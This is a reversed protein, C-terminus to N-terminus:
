SLLVVLVLSGSLGSFWWSNTLDPIWHLGQLLKLVESIHIMLTKCVLSPLFKPIRRVRLVFLPTQQSANIAQVDSYLRTSTTVDPHVPNLNDSM